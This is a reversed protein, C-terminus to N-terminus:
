NGLRIMDIRYHSVYWTDTPTPSGGSQVFMSLKVWDGNQLYVVTSNSSATPLHRLYSNGFGIDEHQVFIPLTQTVTTSIGSIRNVFVSAYGQIDTGSYPTVHLADNGGKLSFNMLYTGTQTIQVSDNGYVTMNRIDSAYSGVLSHYTISPTPQQWTANGINDSTLVKGAGETGNEIRLSGDLHFNATPLSTGVGVASGTNFLMSSAEWDANGRRLTQGPLGSVVPGTAGTPGTPGAIGPGGTAGTPGPPGPVSSGSTEAYLAYPVSLLESVGMPSYNTGGNVDLSVDLFYPGSSWDIASFTGSISSGNGISITFLGFSNTTPNHSESYVAAGTPSYQRIQILLGITQSTIETGSNNRAVAQYSLAQPAQALVANSIFLSAFLLLVTHKM